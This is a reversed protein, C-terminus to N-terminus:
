GVRRVWREGHRTVAGKVELEKLTRMVLRISLGTDQQIERLTGGTGEPLGAADFVTVQTLSMNEVGNSGDFALMQQAPLESSFESATDVLERVHAATWVPQARGDRLRHLCGQSLATTAPGPVVMTQNLMVEAWNLTNLAGSRNAAQTVITGGTLGAVLRNRTLFRHRAPRTGLAYESVIVGGDALQEFLRGHQRPYDVDLGCALVAVSAGGARLAATHARHDVGRAGGSVICYGALALDTSLQTTIEAGYADPQRTGVVTVSQRSLNRLNGSGRAWLAFPAAALGRVASNHDSGREDIRAFAQDLAEPWEQDLPTILRYGATTAAALEAEPDCDVRGATSELIRRPLSPDRHKIRSALGRVDPTPGHGTDRVALRDEWGDPWLLQLVDVNSAEITQRLYVWALLNQRREVDKAITTPQSM